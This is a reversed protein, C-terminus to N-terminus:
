KVGLFRDIQMFFWNPDDYMIFHRATDHVVIQVGKLNAYQRTLNAITRDHDTYEKYAIWSGLVLTPSKIATLGDRLDTGFVDNVADAVATRDSKLGWAILRQLDSDHTVMMRTATGAKVYAEYAEQTQSAIAKSYQASNKKAQELPLNPDAIGAFYPYSDVIVLPGVLEPYRSALALAWSGGLSHGIVIPRTLKQDRIYAALADRTPEFMPGPVRPVGAFGAITFVHCQYRDKYHAVTSDWTEGSSSLGPILLM